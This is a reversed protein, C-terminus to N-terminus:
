MSSITSLTDSDTENEDFDCETENDDIYQIDKLPLPQPVYKIPNIGTELTAECIHVWTSCHNDKYLTVNDYEPYNPRIENIVKEIKKIDKKDKFSVFPYKPEVVTKNFDMTVNFQALYEAASKM